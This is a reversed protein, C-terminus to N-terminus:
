IQRCGVDLQVNFHPNKVCTFEAELKEGSKISLQASGELKFLGFFRCFTSLNLTCHFEDDDVHESLNRAQFVRSNVKSQMSNSQLSLIYDKGSKKSFFLSATEQNKLTQLCKTFSLFVAQCTDHDVTFQVDKTELDQPWYEASNETQVPVHTQYM